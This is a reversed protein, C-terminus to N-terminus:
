CCARGVDATHRQVFVSLKGLADTGMLLISSVVGGPEFPYILHVLLAAAWQTRPSFHQSYHGINKFQTIVPSPKFREPLVVQLWGQIWYSVQQRGPAM